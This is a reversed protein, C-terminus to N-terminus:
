PLHKIHVVTGLTLGPLDEASGMNKAIELFGSSGHVVLYEGPKVSDYSSSLKWIEVTGASIVMKDDQVSRNPINTILNGFRDIYIVRGEIGDSQIDPKMNPLIVPNEIKPGVKEFEFGLSLHAATPAMIDRGHFTHSINPLFLAPNEAKRIEYKKANDLVYGLLGNDPSIFLHGDARVALIARDSGVGPDVVALHITGESFYTFANFLAFAAQLVGQPPLDHVLDVLRAAPNIGLIVGKLVGVYYDKTGFDTTLTITSM